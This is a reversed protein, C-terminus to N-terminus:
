GLVLKRGFPPEPTTPSEPVAWIVPWRPRFRTPGDLDTLVVGIDPHYRDAEELLPTFDTGGGGNFKVQRLDSRGPEFHAVRQVQRDGIVLILGAELRRTISEIEAAFRELLPDEISGSVDVIVVLRAVPRTSSIGPEWPMRQGGALRGQNALYSRAPRSWSLSPQMALGRALQARLIQEWPTRIRPLDALLARLMSHPGDGAHARMLRESWERTQEAEHEPRTEANADPFLDRPTEAGAARVRASRPGDERTQVQTSDDVPQHSRIGDQGTHQTGLDSPQDGRSTQRPGQRPGQRDDIARYLREVDWELLAKEVGPRIGLASLLLQDLRVATAPLELWSLHSLASNVIADACINFLALDVDGLRAQLGLYRQTHRLAIHLVAHAILGAQLAIPLRELGASYYLTTGDTTVPGPDIPQPLDQHRVWLALGGTSPAFEVLRQIARTGRHQYRSSPHFGSRLLNTAAGLTGDMAQIGADRGPHRRLPHQRADQDDRGAPDIAM